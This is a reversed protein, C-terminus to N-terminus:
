NTFIVAEHDFDPRVETVVDKADQVGFGAKFTISKGNPLPSSPPSDLGGEYDFIRDAERGGSMASLLVTSPNFTKGTKNTLTVTMVVYAPAKRVYANKGPKFPGPAGLVVQLGDASAFPKGYRSLNPKGPADTPRSDSSANGKADSSFLGPEYDYGPQVDVVIDKPDEVGFAVTFIIQRGDLVTTSPASGVGKESDFVQNSETSGSQVGIQLSSPDYAAGTKNTVTIEFQQYAKAPRAAATDSPTFTKPAAVSAVLGDGWTFTGGFGATGAAAEASPM